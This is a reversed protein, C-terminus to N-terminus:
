SPAGPSQDGGDASVPASARYVVIPPKVALDTVLHVRVELSHRWLWSREHEPLAAYLDRSVYVVDGRRVRALEAARRYQELTDFEVAHSSPASRPEGRWM